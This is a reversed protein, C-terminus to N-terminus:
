RRVVRAAEAIAVTRHRPLAARRARSRALPRYELGDAGVGHRRIAAIAADKVAPHQALNLYDNCSFSLLRRGDRTAWLSESRTTDVLSRRLHARELEALKARAFEDLSAVVPADAQPKPKLRPRM